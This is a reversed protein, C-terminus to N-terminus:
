QLYKENHLNFRPLLLLMLVLVVLSAVWNLEIYWEDVLHSPIRHDNRRCRVLLPLSNPFLYNQLLNILDFSGDFQDVFNNVNHIHHTVTLFLCTDISEFQWFTFQISAGPWTPASQYRKRKSYNTSFNM